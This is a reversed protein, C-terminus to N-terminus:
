LGNEPRKLAKAMHSAAEAEEFPRCRSLKKVLKETETSASTM